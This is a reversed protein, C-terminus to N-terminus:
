RGFRISFGSRSGYRRSHQGYNRTYGRQYNTRYGTNCNGSRYNNSRVTRYRYIPRGHCDYGSVYKQTYTRPVYHSQGRYVRESACPSADGREYWPRAESSISTGIFAFASIVIATIIKKM